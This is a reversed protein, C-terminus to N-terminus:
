RHNSARHRATPWAFRSGFAMGYPCTRMSFRRVSPVGAWSRSGQPISLRHSDLTSCLAWPPGARGWSGIRSRSARWPSCGPRVSPEVALFVTGYNAGFSEGFYFIRSPDLDHQRDGDVDMGVEIVRVLQMLDAATQRIGDSLFVIDRPPATSLGENAAIM